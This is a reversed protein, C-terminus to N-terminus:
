SHLQFLHESGARCAVSFKGTQFILDAETLGVCLFCSPSFVRWPSQERESSPPTPTFRLKSEMPACIGGVSMDKGEEYANLDSGAPLSVEEERLLAATLTDM